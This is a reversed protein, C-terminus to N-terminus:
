RGPTLQTTTPAPPDASTLAWGLSLALALAGVLLALLTNPTRLRKLRQSVLRRAAVRARRRELKLEVERLGRAVQAMSPPRQDVDRQLCHALLAQLSSPISEGLFSTAGVPLADSRLREIIVARQSGGEFPFRKALVAYLVMALSYIDARADVDHGLVQEPAMWMPSGVVQGIKTTRPTEGGDTERVRAVGFDLVKLVEAGSADTTIFLNDPKLDRHVVGVAHVAALAEAVGRFLTVARQLGMPTTQGNARLAQGKLVEMVFYVRGDPEHVFDIVEVIGPHKVRNVAQAEQMFRKLYEPQQALETRLVKIAVERGLTRHRALYVHGMGGEGLPGHIVYSGLEDAFDLEEKFDGLFVEAEEGMPAEHVADEPLTLERLAKHVASISPFREGRTKALCGQLVPEWAQLHPPLKVSALHHLERTQAPNAGRFPPAGTLLEFLLVGMGYVDSSKDGRSGRVREPSLYEPPVLVREFQLQLSRSSRFLLLETDLLKVHPSDVPGELYLNHPALHGHVVQQSHLYTLAECVLLGVRVAEASSFPGCELLQDAATRGSVPGSVLVCRGDEGRHAVEPALVLPHRRRTSSQTSHNLFRGYLEPDCLLEPRSVQVLVRGQPSEALYADVVSGEAIKKVVEFSIM